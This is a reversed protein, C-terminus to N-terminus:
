SNERSLVYTNTPSPQAVPATPVAPSSPASANPASVCGKGPSKTGKGGRGKGKGPSKTGKGGLVADSHRMISLLILGMAIFPKTSVIM